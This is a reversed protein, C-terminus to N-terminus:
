LLLFVPLVLLLLLIFRVAQVAATVGPHSHGLNTVGIGSSFDVMKRGCETFIYSRNSSEVVYQPLMTKVGKILHATKTKLGTVATTSM